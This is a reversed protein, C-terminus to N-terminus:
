STTASSTSNSESGLRTLVDWTAPQVVKVGAPCTWACSGFPHDLGEWYPCAVVLLNLEVMFLVM